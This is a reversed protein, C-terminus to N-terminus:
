DWAIDEARVNKGLYRRRKWLEVARFYNGAEAVPLQDERFPVTHIEQLLGNETILYCWAGDRSFEGALLSDETSIRVLTLIERGTSTEWVKARNDMGTTLLREGDPSFSVTYVNLAHGAMTSVLQGEPYTWVRATEDANATAMLTGDQSFAISYAHKTFPTATELRKVNRQEEINWLSVGGSMWALVLHKGDPGFRVLRLGNGGYEPIESFQSQLVVENDSVQWIELGDALCALALLDGDESFDADFTRGDRLEIREGTDTDSIWSNRQVPDIGVRWKEDPSYTTYQSDIIYNAESSELRTRGTGERWRFDLHLFEADGGQVESPISISEAPRLRATGSLFSEDKRIPLLRDLSWVRAEDFSVTILRNGEPSMALKEMQKGGQLRRLEIGSQADYIRCIGDEGSALIYRDDSSYLVYRFRANEEYMELLLEESYTGYVRIYGSSDCVVLQSADRTLRGALSNENVTPYSNLLEGTHVDYRRAEYPLILNVLVSNGDPLFSVEYSTFRGLSIDRYVEGTDTKYIMLKKDNGTTTFLTGDPSIAGGRMVPNGHGQIAVRTLEKGNRADVILAFGDLMTLLLRRGDSSYRVCWVGRSDYEWRDLLAGTGVDWFQVAGGQHGTVITRGDPSFEAHFFANRESLVDRDLTMDEESLRRMLFGWEWQRLRSSVGHLLTDLAKDPRDEELYAKASRLGAFYAEREAFDRAAEAVQANERALDMASNTALLQEQAWEYNIWAIVASIVALVLLVAGSGIAIKRQQEKRRRKAQQRDIEARIRSKDKTPELRDVEVQALSLDGQELAAEAFLRHAQQRLAAFQPATPWLAQISDLEGVIRSYQSYGAEPSSLEREVAAIRKQAEIRRTQGTRFASIRTAFDKATLHRDSIEPQTAELVLSRLEEPIHRDRSCEEMPKLMGQIAERFVEVATNGMHPYEGTLLYFLTAGLLYVDTWPGLKNPSLLTQEPAMFAPTGAPNPTDYITPPLPSIAPKWPGELNSADLCVALGWDMLLVEGYDGLMVQSPKVDRHIVARSHAFAIALAVDELIPLHKALFDDVSLMKFDESLVRSWSQGRVLRMVIGDEQGDHSSALSYLPVINPHELISGTTAEQRLNELRKSKESPEGRLLAGKDGRVIKVAVSRPLRYDRAEWVEGSGGRGIMQLMEFGALSPPTFDGDETVGPSTPPGDLEGKLVQDLFESALMGLPHYAGAGISYTALPDEPLDKPIQAPLEQGM